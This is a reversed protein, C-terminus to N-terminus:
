RQKKVSEPDVEWLSLLDVSPSSSEDAGQMCRGMGDRAADAVEPGVSLEPKQENEQAQGQEGESGRIKSAGTEGDVKDVRQARGSQSLSRHSRPPPQTFDFRSSSM